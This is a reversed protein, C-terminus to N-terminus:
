VGEACEGCHLEGEPTRDSPSLFKKVSPPLINGDADFRCRAAPHKSMHELDHCHHCLLELNDWGLTRGPDSMDQPRLAKRHHVILGPRGCRECLGHRSAMYALRTQQWASSNYFSKSWSKAM